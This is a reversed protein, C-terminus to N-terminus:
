SNINTLIERRNEGMGPRGLTAQGALGQVGPVMARDWLACNSDWSQAQRMGELMHRRRQTLEHKWSNETAHQLQHQLGWASGGARRDTARHPIAWSQVALASVAPLGMGTGHFLTEVDSQSLNGGPARPLPCQSYSSSPLLSSEQQEVGILQQLQQFTRIRVSGCCLPLSPWRRTTRSLKLTKAWISWKSTYYKFKTKTLIIGKRQDGNKRTQLFNSNLKSQGANSQRASNREPRINFVTIRPTVWGISAHQQGGQRTHHSLWGIDNERAKNNRLGKQNQQPLIYNNSNNKAGLYIKMNLPDNAHIM